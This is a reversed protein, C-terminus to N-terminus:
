ENCPESGPKGIDTSNAVQGIVCVMHLEDQAVGDVIMFSRELGYQEFGMRQYLAIAAPNNANVGLNVQRVLLESAAFAKAAAMLQSGVNKRRATPAVYTGWIYAKHSLKRMAERRIGVVGVLAGDRFAGLIARGSQPALRDAVASVPTEHEEDYSSAFATPCEDLGQLRLAQFAAADDQALARILVKSDADVNLPLRSAAPHLSM